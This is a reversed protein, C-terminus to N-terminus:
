VRLRKLPTRRGQRADLTHVTCVLCADFSRIVHGIEVPNEPDRVPTGILAEEWPGRRGDVDRPSGNWATPTIIQYHTIEGEKVKVWHGLAGRSAEVLGFAEGSEIPRPKIYYAGPKSASAAMENLWTEMAPLMRAPRALRALQRLLITAGRQRLLDVFLPQGSVIMEALPGTEAPQGRYRPAKSWSYRKGEQGSAYPRTSGNFPHLGGEEGEFWSYASHEVVHQQDFAEVQPGSAFGAPLFQAADAGLPRVATQAPMELNGYSIFHNTGSVPQDLGIARGFRLFFGMESNFHAADQELWAELDAASQVEAWRELSCGLVQEEYWRRYAALQAACQLLESPGPRSVVGGPMMFSSHPWQGGLIAIIELAKKSVQIAERSLRGQFPTYRAVAEEFLPQKQYAPNAFDPAFLLFAHRVDSQIYEVMQAINRLRRADDPVEAAALRDLAVAAASLHATTCIGCIRPTIVLSDLPARGVLINEFGRYMMGASWADVVIGDKVEVRVELDGEVRNLPVKIVKNQAM